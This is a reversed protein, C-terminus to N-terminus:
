ISFSCNFTNSSYESIDNMQITNSMLPSILSEEKKTHAVISLSYIIQCCRLGIFLEPCGGSM